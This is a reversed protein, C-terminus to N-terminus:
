ELNLVTTVSILGNLVHSCILRVSADWLSAWPLGCRSAERHPFECVLALPPYPASWGYVYVWVYM